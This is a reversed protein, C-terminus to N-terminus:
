SRLSENRQGRSVRQGSFNVSAESVPPSLEFPINELPSLVVSNGSRVTTGQQMFEVVLLRRRDWFVTAMLKRTQKFNEPKNPSHTHTWQRSQEKTEVNVFSVWTEDSTVWAIYDLFEDGDEHYRDLFILASPMRQTKHARAFMKPVCRARLKHYGLKHRARLSCHTFNTDCSIESMTFSRRECFQKTLVEFMIMLRKWKVRRRSCKNAWRRVNYVLTKEKM